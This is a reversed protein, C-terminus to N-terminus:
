ASLSKKLYKLVQTFVKLPALAGCVSMEYGKPSFTQSM